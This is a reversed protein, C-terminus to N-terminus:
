EEQEDDNRKAKKNKGPSKSLAQTAKERAAKADATARSVSDQITKVSKDLSSQMKTLADASKVLDEKFAVIKLLYGTLIPAISPHHAFGKEIYESMVRHAQFCAWIYDASSSKAQRVTISAVRRRVKSIDSWVIRVLKMVLAWRATPKLGTSAGYSEYQKLMFHFLSRLFSKSTRHLQIAVLEMEASLNAREVTSTFSVDMEDLKSGWLNHLGDDFDGNGAFVAYSELKVLVNPNSSSQMTSGGMCEPVEVSYSFFVNQYTPDDMELRNGKHEQELRQGLNGFDMTMLQCESVGDLFLLGVGDKDEGYNALIWAKVQAKSTFWKNGIQVAREESRSELDTVRAMLIEYKEALSSMAANDSGSTAFNVQRVPPPAHPKKQPDAGFNFGSLMAAAEDLDSRSSAPFGAELSDLRTKVGPVEVQALNQLAPLIGLELTKKLFEAIRNETKGVTEELVKRSVMAGLASQLETRVQNIVNKRVHSEADKILATSRGESAALKNDFSVVSEEVDQVAQWLTPASHDRPQRGM